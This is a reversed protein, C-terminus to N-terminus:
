VALLALAALGAATGLAEIAAFVLAVIVIAGLVLIVGDVIVPDLAFSALLKGLAALATRFHTRAEGVTWPSFIAWPPAGCTSWRCVPGLNGDAYWSVCTKKTNGDEWVAIHEDDIIQRQNSPTNYNFNDLLFGQVATTINFHEV